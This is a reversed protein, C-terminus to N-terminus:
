GVRVEAEGRAEKKRRAVGDHSHGTADDEDSDALVFNDTQYEGGRQEEPQVRRKKPSHRDDNAHHPANDDIATRKKGV